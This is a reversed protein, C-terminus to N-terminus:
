KAFEILAKLYSTVSRKKWNPLLVDGFMLGHAGTQLYGTRGGLM